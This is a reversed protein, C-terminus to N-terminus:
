GSDGDTGIIIEMTGEAVSPDHVLSPDFGISDFARAMQLAFVPVKERDRVRIEFGDIGGSFVGRNLHIDIWGADKLVSSVEKAFKGAEEDGLVAIIKVPGKHIPKLAQHLRTRQQDSIARREKVKMLAIEAQAARENAAKMDTLAKATNKRVLATEKKAEESQAEAVKVLDEARAARERFGAAEVELKGTRENAVALDALASAYDSEVRMRAEEKADSVTLLVWWSVCGFLAGAAICAVATKRIWDVSRTRHSIADSFTEAKPEEASGMENNLSDGKFSRWRLLCGLLAGAVTMGVAVVGAWFAWSELTFLDIESQM